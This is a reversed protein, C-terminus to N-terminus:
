FLLFLFLWLFVNVSSCCKKKGQFDLILLHAITKILFTTLLQFFVFYINRLVNCYLKDFHFKAIPWYNHAM